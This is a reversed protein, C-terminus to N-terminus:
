SPLCFAISLSSFHCRIVSLDSDFSPLYLIRCFVRSLSCLCVITSSRSLPHSLSALLFCFSSSFSALLCILCSLSRPVRQCCYRSCRLTNSTSSDFRRFSSSAPWLRSVFSILFACSRVSVVVSMSSVLCYRTGNVTSRGFVTLLRRDACNLELLRRSCGLPPLSLLGFRM